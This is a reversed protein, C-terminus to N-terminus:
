RKKRTKQSQELSSFFVFGVETKAAAAMAARGGLKRVFMLALPDDHTQKTPRLTPTPSSFLRLSFSFQSAISALDDLVTARM